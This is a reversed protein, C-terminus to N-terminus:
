PIILVIDATIFDTHQYIDEHLFKPILRKRREELRKEDAGNDKCSNWFKFQKM